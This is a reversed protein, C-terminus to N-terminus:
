ANGDRLERVWEAASPVDAWARTGEAIFQELYDTASQQNFENFRLFSNTSPNIEVGKTQDELLFEISVNLSM